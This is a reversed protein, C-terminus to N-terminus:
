ILTDEVWNLQLQMAWISKKRLLKISWKKGETIKYQVLKKSNNCKLFINTMKMEPRM